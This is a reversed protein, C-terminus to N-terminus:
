IRHERAYKRTFYKWRLGSTMNVGMDAVFVRAGAHRAIVNVSAGGNVFNFVMQHTVEQPFLTVGEEVVGHDGACTVIIKNKLRVDM